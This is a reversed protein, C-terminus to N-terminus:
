SLACSESMRVDYLFETATPVFLVFLEAASNPSSLNTLFAVRAGRAAMARLSNVVKSSFESCFSFPIVVMPEYSQDGDLIGEHFSKYSKNLFTCKEQQM